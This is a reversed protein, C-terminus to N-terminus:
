DTSTFTLRIVKDSDWALPLLLNIDDRDPDEARRVARAAARHAASFGDAAVTLSASRPESVTGRSTAWAQLAAWAAEADPYARLFRVAAAASAEPLKEGVRAPVARLGVRTPPPTPDPVVTTSPAGFAALLRRLLLGRVLMAAPSEKAATFLPDEFVSSRTLRPTVVGLVAPRPAGAPQSVMRWVGVRRAARPGSKEALAEDFDVTVGLDAAAPWFSCVDAATFSGVAFGRLSEPASVLAEEVEPWVVSARITLEELSRLLPVRRENLADVLDVPATYPVSFLARKLAMVEPVLWWPFWAGNGIQALRDPFSSDMRALLHAPVEMHPPVKPGTGRPDYFKGPLVSAVYPRDAVGTMPTLSGVFWHAWAAARRAPDPDYVDGPRARGIWSAVWPTAAVDAPLPQAPTDGM